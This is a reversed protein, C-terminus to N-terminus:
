SHLFKGKNAGERRRTLSEKSIEFIEHWLYQM